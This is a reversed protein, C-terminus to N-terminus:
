YLHTETSSKSIKLINVKDQMFYGFNEKDEEMNSDLFLFRNFIDARKHATDYLM